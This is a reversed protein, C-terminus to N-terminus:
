RATREAKHQPAIGHIRNELQMLEEGHEKLFREKEERDGGLLLDIAAEVYPSQALAEEFRPHWEEEPGRPCYKRRCDALLDRYAFLTHMYRAEKQKESLQGALSGKGTKPVFSTKDATMEYPIGFDQALKVAAEKPKLGFLKATLDIADGDEQCGFCHFRRDVKMSPNRDKHFLCRAMGGKGIKIGYRLAAEKATVGERVAEFVSM